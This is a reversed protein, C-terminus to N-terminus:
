HKCLRRGKSLTLRLKDPSALYLSFKQLASFFSGDEQKNNQYNEDYVYKCIFSKKIHKNIFKELSFNSVIILIM